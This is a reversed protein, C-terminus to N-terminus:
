LVASRRAPSHFVLREETLLPSNRSTPFALSILGNLTESSVGLVSHVNDLQVM